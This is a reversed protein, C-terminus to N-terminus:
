MHKEYAAKSLIYCPKGEVHLEVLWDENQADLGNLYGATVRFAGKKIVKKSFIGKTKEPEQETVEEAVQKSIDLADKVEIGEEVEVQKQKKAM